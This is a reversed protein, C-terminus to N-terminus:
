TNRLVRIWGSRAPTTLAPSTTRIRARAVRYQQFRGLAVVLFYLRICPLRERSHESLAEKKCGKEFLPATM